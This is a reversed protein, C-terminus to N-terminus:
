KCGKMTNLKCFFENVPRNWTIWYEEDFPSRGGKIIFRLVEFPISIFLMIGMFCLMFPFLLVYLSRKIINM